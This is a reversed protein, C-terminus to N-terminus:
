PKLRSNHFRWFVNVNGVVVVWEGVIAYCFIRELLAIVAFQEDPVVVLYVFTMEVVQGVVQFVVVQEDVVVCPHNLCPKMKLFIRTCLDLNEAEFWALRGVIQASEFGVFRANPFAKNAIQFFPFLALKCLFQEDISIEYGELGLADAGVLAHRVVNTEAPVVVLNGKGINKRM